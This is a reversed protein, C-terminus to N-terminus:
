PVASYQNIVILNRHEDMFCPLVAGGCCCNKIQQDMGLRSLRSKLRRPHLCRAAGDSPRRAAGRSSM